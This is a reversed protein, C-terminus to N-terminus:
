GIPHDELKKSRRLDSTRPICRVTRTTNRGPQGKVRTTPNGAPNGGRAGGNASGTKGDVSADESQGRPDPRPM